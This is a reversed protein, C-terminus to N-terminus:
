TGDGDRVDLEPASFLSVGNARDIDTAAEFVLNDILNPGGLVLFVCGSGM